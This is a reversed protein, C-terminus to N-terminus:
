IVLRIERVTGSELTQGKAMARRARVMQLGFLDVSTSNPMEEGGARMARGVDRLVAVDQELILNTFPKLIPKLLAGVAGARYAVVVDAITEHEGIPTCLSTIAYHAGGALQYDVETINPAYFRDVHRGEGRTSKRPSLLVALASDKAPDDFYEASLGYPESTLRIRMVQGAFTRFWGAHVSTTHTVDLLNELLLEIGVDFRKRIHFSRYGPVGVGAIDHPEGRPPAAGPWVWIMGQRERCALARLCRKPLSADAPLSPIKAVRGQGDYSWHHYPCRLLGDLVKGDSLAANRHLCRDVVAHPVGDASRYVAYAQGFLVVRVPRKSGLSKSPLAPYWANELGRGAQADDGAFGGVGIEASAHIQEMRLLGKNLFLGCRPVAGTANAFGNM